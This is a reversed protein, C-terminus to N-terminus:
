GGLKRSGDRRVRFPYPLRGPNAGSTRTAGAIRIEDVDLYNVAWRILSMLHRQGMINSGVGQVHLGEVIAVQDVVHYDGAVSLELGLSSCKLGVIFSSHEFDSEVIEWLELSTALVTPNEAHQTGESVHTARLNAPRNSTKSRSDRMAM